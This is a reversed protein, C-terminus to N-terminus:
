GPGGLLRRPDDCRCHALHSGKTDAAVIRGRSCGPPLVFLPPRSSCASCIWGEHTGCDTARVQTSKVDTGGDPHCGWTFAPCLSGPNSAATRTSMSGGGPGAGTCCRPGCRSGRLPEVALIVGRQRDGFRGPDGGGAWPPAASPGLDTSGQGPRGPDRPEDDTAAWGLPPALDWNSSAGGVVGVVIGVAFMVPLSHPVPPGGGAAAGIM